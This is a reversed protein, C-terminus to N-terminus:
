VHKFLLNKIDAQVIACPKMAAHRRQIIVQVFIRGLLICFANIRDKNQHVICRRALEQAEIRETCRLYANLLETIRFAFFQRTVRNRTKAHSANCASKFTTSGSQAFNQEATRDVSTQM